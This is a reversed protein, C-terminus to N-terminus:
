LEFIGYKNRTPYKKVKKINSITVIVKKGNDIIKFSQNCTPFYKFWNRMQNEFIDDILNDKRTRMDGFTKYPKIKRIILDFVKNISVGFIEYNIIHYNTFRTFYGTLNHGFYLYKNKFESWNNCPYESIKLLKFNKNKM